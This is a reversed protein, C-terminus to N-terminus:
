HINDNQCLLSCSLSGPNALIRWHVDAFSLFSCECFRATCWTLLNGVSVYPRFFRFVLAVFCFILILGRCLTYLLFCYFDQCYYICCSLRKAKWCGDRVNRFRSKFVNTIVRLIWNRRERFPEQTKLLLSRHGACSGVWREQARPRQRIPMVNGSAKVTQGDIQKRNGCRVYVVVAIIAWGRGWIRLVVGEDM